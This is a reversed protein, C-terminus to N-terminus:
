KTKKTKPVFKKEIKMTQKTKPVFKKEIKIAPKLKPVFEKEIKMAPKPQSKKMHDNNFILKREEM